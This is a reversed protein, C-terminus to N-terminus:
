TPPHLRQAFWKRINQMRLTQHQPARRKCLAKEVSNEAAGWRTEVCDNPNYAMEFAEKRGIIEKLSLTTPIGGSNIYTINQSSTERDLFENLMEIIESAALTDPLLYRRPDAAAKQPFQEVSEIAILLRLDRNPTSYAEWLGGTQFVANASGPMPIIMGPKAKLAEECLAVSKVRVLVQEHLAGVLNQLVWFVNMSQPNILRDIRDYFSDREMKSQVLSFPIYASSDTLQENALLQLKEDAQIIPRFAKFGPDGVVNHTNFLFNGEWFRKVAVTGDPQADVALLLGSQDPTQPKWATIVFTHGYPDAFITGPRIAQRSLQIPYYDTGNQNLATRATSSHVGDMVLRLFSNFKAVRNQRLSSTENTIWRDTKPAKGQYGRDCLHFGFPLGMKWAFYARLFFPNDACDPQMVVHVPSLSDDENLGLSNYLINREHNQTLEHLSPWSSGEALQGLLMNIWGSYLEEYHADWSKETQWIKSASVPNAAAVIFQRKRLLSDGLLLNATYTGRPLSDYKEARWYPFDNGFRAEKSHVSDNKGFIQSNLNDLTSQGIAVVWFTQGPSPQEPIVFLATVTPIAKAKEVDSHNLSNQQEPLPNQCGYILLFFATALGKWLFSLASYANTKM